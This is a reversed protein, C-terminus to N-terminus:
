KSGGYLKKLHICFDFLGTANSGKILITDNDKVFSEFKKKLVEVDVYNECIFTDKFYDTLIKSFKGITILTKPNINKLVPILKKHYFVSKNGLEHMDGLIIVFNKNSINRFNNLSVLMSEPNANYADNIITINKSNELDIQFFNGRGESPKLNKIVNKILKIDLKLIQLLLIISTLNLSLHKPLHTLDIILNNIKLIIGSKIEKIKLEFNKLSNNSGFEFINSTYNSAINKLYNYWKNKSNLFIYGKKKLGIFIESKAIAIQKESKFNGIHSPSVNTIIIFNPQSILSMERLENIHNMGLELICNRYTKNLRSLTLFLGLKNNNNKETAHTKGYQSLIKLAMDKTSTKGNSGTIAIVNGKFRKRSFKALGELALFTNKVLLGNYKKADNKNSVVIGAAGKLLADEIFNHGDFNPGKLAFFLDNKKITRTDISIGKVNKNKLFKFSIDIGKTSKIIDESKWLIDCNITM